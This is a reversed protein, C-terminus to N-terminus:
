LVSLSVCRGGPTPHRPADTWRHDRRSDGSREELGDRHFRAVSVATGLRALRQRLRGFYQAGSLRRHRHVAGTAPRRAPGVVSGVTANAAGFRAGASTVQESRTSAPLAAAFELSLEELPDLARGRTDPFEVIAASDAVDLIRRCVSNMTAPDNDFDGHHIAES